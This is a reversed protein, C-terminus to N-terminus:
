QTVMYLGRCANFFQMKKILNVKKLVTKGLVWFKKASEKEEWSEFHKSRKQLSCILSFSVLKSNRERSTCFISLLLEINHGKRPQHPQSKLMQKKRKKWEEEQKKKKYYEHFPIHPTDQTSIPWALKLIQNVYKHDNTRGSKRPM